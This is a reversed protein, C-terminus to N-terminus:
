RRHAHDPYATRPVARAVAATVVPVQRVGPMSPMLRRPAYLMHAAFRTLSVMDPADLGAEASASDTASDAPHIEIPLGTPAEASAIVDLPYWRQDITLDQAALRVKSLPALATIYATRGIVQVDVMGGASAPVEIKVPGPFLVLREKGVGLSVPVPRDRFEVHEAQQPSGHSALPSRGSAAKGPKSAKAKTPAAVGGPSMVPTGSQSSKQGTGEGLDVPTASADSAAPEDRQGPSAKVPKIEVQAAVGGAFAGIVLVPLLRRWSTFMTM